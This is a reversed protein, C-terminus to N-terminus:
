WLLFCCRAWSAEVKASEAAVDPRPRVALDADSVDVVDEEDARSWLLPAAMRSPGEGVAVICAAAGGGGM